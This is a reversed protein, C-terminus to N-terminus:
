KTAYLVCGREFNYKHCFMSCNAIDNKINCPVLDDFKDIIHPCRNIFRNFYEYGYLDYIRRAKFIDREQRYDETTLERASISRCAASVQWTDEIELLIM